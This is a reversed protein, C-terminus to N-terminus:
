HMCEGSGCCCGSVAVSVQARAHRALDRLPLPLVRWLSELIWLALGLRVLGNRARFSAPFDCDHSGGCDGADVPDDVSVPDDVRANLEARDRSKSTCM